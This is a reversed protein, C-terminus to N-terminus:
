RAFAGIGAVALLYALLLAGALWGVIGNMRLM